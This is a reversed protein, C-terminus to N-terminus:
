QRGGETDSDSYRRLSLRDVMAARFREDCKLIEQRVKDPNLNELLSRRRLIAKELMPSLTFSLELSFRVARLIRLPDEKLRRYPNGVTRIRRNAIDRIGKGTPDVITGLVDAYICNLTFDRRRYDRYLSNVFRVEQPHRFDSYGKEERFTAITIRYPLLKFSVTGFKEYYLAYPFEKYVQGPENRVAFDMDFSEKGLLADRVCGGVLFVNDRGLKQALLSFVEMQGNTLTLNM